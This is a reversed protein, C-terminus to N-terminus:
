QAPHYNPTYYLSYTVKTYPKCNPEIAECGESSFQLTYRGQPDKTAEVYSGMITEANFAYGHKNLVKLVQPLVVSPADNCAYSMNWSRRTDLGATQYYRGDQKCGAGSLDVIQAALDNKKNHDSVWFWIQVATLLVVIIGVVKLTTRLKSM